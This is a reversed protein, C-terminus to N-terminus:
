RVAGKGRGDRRARVRVCSPCGPARKRELWRGLRAPLDGMREDDLLVRLGRLAARAEPGLEDAVRYHVWLGARRDELLGAHLLYRLHRSAKSQTIGLAGVFDCVCLEGHRLMLALMDLRTPDALAGFLSALSRM